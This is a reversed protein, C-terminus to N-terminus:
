QPEESHALRRTVLFSWIVQNADLDNSTKGIEKEVMYQEGGPWTNGAGKVSYLVVQANDQCGEYADVRTEMGGKERPPLKSHVPKEACHNLKAWAAASDEISITPIKGTKGSSGGYSVVPDSTGNILLVPIPRAPLCVMARPMAAGVAAIAAVRSAMICGAKMTMFGGDSLGTVYVRAKDMSFKIAMKDLMSHFFEIDNPRNDRPGPGRRGGPYGGPPYRGPWPRGYPGRRMPVPRVERVGINWRGHLANPYVAIISDKDALQNFRTLREMDAADQNAAHLLIVVPYHQKDDYGSPLHVLYTREVDDVTVTEKTEQAIATQGVLTAGLYCGIITATRMGQWSISKM